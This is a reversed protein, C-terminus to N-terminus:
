INCPESIFDCCSAVHNFSGNEKPDKYLCFMTAHAVIKKLYFLHLWFSHSCCMLVAGIWVLNM